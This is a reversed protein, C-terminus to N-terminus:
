SSADESFRFNPRAAAFAIIGSSMLVLASPEPVAAPAALSNGIYPSFVLSFEDALPFSPDITVYPDVIASASGAGLGEEPPVDFDVYSSATMTISQLLDSTVMEYIPSTFTDSETETANGYPSYAVNISDGLNITAGTESGLDTQLMFTATAQEHFSSDEFLNQLGGDDVGVFAQPWFVLPVSQGPPGVVVFQYQFNDVTVQDSGESVGQISASVTIQPTFVAGIPLTVTSTPYITAASYGAAYSAISGSLVSGPYVLSETQGPPPPFIVEYSADTPIAVVSAAAPAGAFLILFAPVFTKM